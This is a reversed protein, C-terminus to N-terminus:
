ITLFVVIGPRSGGVGGAVSSDSTTGPSVPLSSIGRAARLLAHVYPPLPSSEVALRRWSILVRPLPVLRGGQQLLATM